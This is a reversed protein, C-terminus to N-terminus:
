TPTRAYKQLVADAQEGTMGKEILKVRISLQNDVSDQLRQDAPLAQKVLQALKELNSRIGEFGSAVERIASSDFYM